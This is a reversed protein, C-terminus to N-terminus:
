FQGGVSVEGPGIALQARRSLMTARLDFLGWVVGALALAGGAVFAINAGLAFTQARSQKSEAAGASPERVADDHAGGSVAGFVAGTAIGAVGVGTLIWPLPSPRSTPPNELADRREREAKKRQEAEYDAREREVRAKRELAAEQALEDKLQDISRQVAGRDPSTPESALYRTYAEVALQRSGAQQYARGLNYLLASSPSLRYAEELLQAAQAFDGADFASKARVTLARADKARAAGQPEQARAEPAVGSSVGSAVTLSLILRYTARRRGTM